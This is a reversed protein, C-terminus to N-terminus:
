SIFAAGPKGSAAQENPYYYVGNQEEPKHRYYHIRITLNKRPANTEGHNTKVHRLEIGQKAEKKM